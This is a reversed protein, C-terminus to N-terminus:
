KAPSKGFHTLVVAESQAGWRHRVGVPVRIACGTNVPYSKEATELVFSGSLCTIVETHQHLEFDYTRGKELRIVVVNGQPEHTIVIDSDAPAARAASFLDIVSCEKVDSASVLASAASAAAAAQQTESISAAAVPDLPVYVTRARSVPPIPILEYSDPSPGVRKSCSESPEEDSLTEDAHNGNSSSLLNLKARSRARKYYDIEPYITVQAGNLMLVCGKSAALYKQQLAYKEFVAHALKKESRLLVRVSYPDFVSTIQEITPNGSAATWRVVISKNSKEIDDNSRKKVLNGDTSLKLTTSDLIAAKLFRVDKCLTQLHPYTDLVSQIPVYGREIPPANPARGHKAAREVASRDNFFQELSLRISEVLALLDQSSLESGGNRAPSKSQKMRKLCVL